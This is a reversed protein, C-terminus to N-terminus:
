ECERYLSECLYEHSAIDNQPAYTYTNIASRYSGPFQSSMTNYPQTHSNTFTFGSFIKCTSFVKVTTQFLELLLVTKKRLHKKSGHVYQIRCGEGEWTCMCIVQVCAQTHLDAHTYSHQQPVSCTAM